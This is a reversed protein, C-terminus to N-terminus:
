QGSRRDIEERLAKFRESARPNKQLYSDITDQAGEFDEEVIHQVVMSRQVEIRVPALKVAEDVLERARETFASDIPAAAQYLTALAVYVRWEEPESSIASIGERNAANLAAAAEQTTLNGWGRTVENFMVIRPYNALLPFAQITEDFLDLREEWNISRNLADLIRTSGKYPAYNISYIALGTIVGVAALAIALSACSELYQPRGDSAPLPGTRVARPLSIAKADAATELYTVYGFLLIYQVVTGPTDFLFLNQVFYGALAAGIFLTVVQDERSQERVRRRIVWLMYIWIAIYGSFGLIGKTTLEEILKNHAQDFSTVSQAVIETTLHRDYAIAFNEPGWGLVPRSAFGRLGVVASNVRGRLSDDQPGIKAIRSMMTDSGAIKGFAATNRGLAVVLVLSVVVWIIALSLHRVRREQGWFIYGTAFALLGAVLGILAGRSGSLFLIWVHLVIAAIWFSRWLTESSVGIGSDTGKKTRRRRRRAPGSVARAATAEDPEMLSRGLFASAILVNVLMYTGVYTANGLTIDLRNTAEMFGLIGIDFHQSLGLLGLVFGIGLNINLLLRWDAWSRFVSAMVVVYVFWHALDVVGTMREYTSWLSRQQSVGFAAAMFAILLYAGFIVLLWSRPVRYSPYRLALVVWLGFAIETLTHAYLAKGVVYPFFTNPLPEAMVILPTLLVLAVAARVSNLLPKEM